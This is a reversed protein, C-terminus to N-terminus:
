KKRVRAVRPSHRRHAATGEAQLELWRPLEESSDPLDADLEIIFRPPLPAGLVERAADRLACELEIRFHHLVLRDFDSSV